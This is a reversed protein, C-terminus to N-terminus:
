DRMAERVDANSKILDESRHYNFTSEVAELRSLTRGNQLQQEKIVDMIDDFKKDAVRVHINLNTQAAAATNEVQNYLYRVVFFAIIVIVGMTITVRTGKYIVAEDKGM